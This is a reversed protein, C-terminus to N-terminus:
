PIQELRAKLVDRKRIALRLEGTIEEIAPILKSSISVIRGIPAIQPDFSQNETGVFEPNPGQLTVGILGFMEGEQSARYKLAVIRKEAQALERRLDDIAHEQDIATM